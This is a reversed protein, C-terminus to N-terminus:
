EANNAQVTWSTGVNGYGATPAIMGGNIFWVATNGTNDIWFIDSYGPGNFEGTQVM